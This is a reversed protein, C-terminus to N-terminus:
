QSPIEPKLQTHISLSIKLLFLFPLIVLAIYPSAQCSLGDHAYFISISSAFAILVFLFVSELQIRLLIQVLAALLEFFIIRVSKEVRM